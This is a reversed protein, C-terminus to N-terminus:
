THLCELSSWLQPPPPLLRAASPMSPRIRGIGDRAMSRLSKLNLVSGDPRIRTRQVEVVASFPANPVPTLFINVQASSPLVTALVALLLFGSFIGLSFRM